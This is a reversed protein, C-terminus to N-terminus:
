EIRELPKCNKPHNGQMFRLWGRGVDNKMRRKM